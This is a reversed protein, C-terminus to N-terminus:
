EEYHASSIVDGVQIAFSYREEDPASDPVDPYQDIAVGKWEVEMVPSDPNYGNRFQITDYERAAYQGTESDKTLLRSIWFQSFTRYEEEKEGRYIADFSERKLTM